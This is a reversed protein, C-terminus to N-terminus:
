FHNCLVSGFKNMSQIIRAFRDITLSVAASIEGLHVFSQVLVEYHWLYESM